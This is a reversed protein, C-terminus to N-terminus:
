LYIASLEQLENAGTSNTDAGAEHKGFRDLM